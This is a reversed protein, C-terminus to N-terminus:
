RNKSKGMWMFHSLVFLIIVVIGFLSFLRPEGSLAGFCSVLTIGAILLGLGIWAATKILWWVFSRVPDFTRTETYHIERLNNFLNSDKVDLNRRHVGQGYKLVNYWM